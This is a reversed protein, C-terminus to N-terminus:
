HSGLQPLLNIAKMLLSTYRVGVMLLHKLHVGSHDSHKYLLYFKSGFLLLFTFLNKFNEMIQFM